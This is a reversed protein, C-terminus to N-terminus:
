GFTLEVYNLSLLKFLRAKYDGLDPSSNSHGSTESANDLHAEINSKTQAISAIRLESGVALLMEADRVIALVSRHAHGDAPQVEHQATRTSTSRSASPATPRVSEGLQHLSSGTSSASSVDSPRRAHRSIPQLSPSPPLVGSSSSPAFIPHSRIYHQWNPLTLTEEFSSSSGEEESASM